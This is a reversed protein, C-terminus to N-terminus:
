FGHRLKCWGQQAVSHGSVEQGAGKGKVKRQVWMSFERECVCVCFDHVESMMVSLTYTLTHPNHHM